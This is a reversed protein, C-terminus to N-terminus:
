YLDLAISSDELWVSEVGEDEKRSVWSIRVSERLGMFWSSKLLTVLMSTRLKDRCGGTWPEGGGTWSLM